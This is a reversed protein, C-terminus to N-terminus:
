RSLDVNPAIQAFLQRLDDATRIGSYVTGNIVFSPTSNVGYQNALAADDKLTQDFKGSGVCQDYAAMDLGLKEAMERLRGASLSGRNEGAQNTFISIHMDWFRNQDMACLSAVAANRSEPGVFALSRVEYRVKGTAAFADIIGQEYQRAQVGCAPCQYDIFELVRIPADAPGWARTNPEANAPPTKTTIVVPTASSQTQVVSLVIAGGILLVAVGGIVALLTLTRKREQQRRREILERRKSM